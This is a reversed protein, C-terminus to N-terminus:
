AEQATQTDRSASRGAPDEFLKDALHVRRMLGLCTLVFKEYPSITCQRRYEKRLTEESGTQYAALFDRQQRQRHPSMRAAITTGDSRRTWKRKWDEYTCSEFHMTFADSSEKIRFKAEDQGIPLHIGIKAVASKVKTATKGLSHGRYYGYKFANGCGLARAITPAGRLWSKPVKFWRIEEILHRTYNMQPVAELTPFRVAEADRGARELYRGIDKDPTLIFEDSDIHILWDIGDRRAANLAMAANVDQMQELTSHDPSGQSKWYADDCRICTLKDLKQFHEFTPDDPDFFLIMRDVGSNRYYNVFLTLDTQSARVTSVIGIAIGPM